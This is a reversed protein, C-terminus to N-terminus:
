PIKGILPNDLSNIVKNVKIYELIASRVEM